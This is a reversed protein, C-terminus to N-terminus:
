GHTAEAYPQPSPYHLHRFRRMAMLALVVGALIHPGGVLALSADLPLWRHLLAVLSVCLIVWGFGALLPRLAAPDVTGVVVMVASVVLAGGLMLDRIDDTIESRLLEVRDLIVQQGAAILEGTAEWLTVGQSNRHQTQM